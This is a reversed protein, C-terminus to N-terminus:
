KVIVSNIEYYASFMRNHWDNPDHSLEFYHFYRGEPFIRDNFVFDKIDEKKGEEIITVRAQLVEDANSLEQYARYYDAVFVLLGFIIVSYAIQKVLKVSFDLNAYLVCIAAFFLTIIGFAARGPFIPSASMALTAVIAGLIFVFAIFLVPKDTKKGFARYFCWTVIFVFTPVLVFYYYGAIAAAFRGMFILILSDNVHEQSLVNDMRAYNGPAAIMIVCGIIAGILGTIAWLPTQRLRIKYYGIFAILMVILAVAMNENTWGAFIGGIFFLVSRLHSNKNTPTFVQKTYPLLFCLIILTGWLYNASGTIWLITSGFAPQFFWILLNIALLLSPKIKNSQNVMYYSVLTFALYALSNIFDGISIGVLLLSQAIIHVVTRGGWTFYHEYQTYLIDSFSKVKTHGDPLLCYNWDDGFIPHLVNLIYILIFSVVIVLGFCIKLILPKSFFTDAKNLTETLSNSYDHIKNANLM